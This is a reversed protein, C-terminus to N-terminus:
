RINRKTKPYLSKILRDYEKDKPAIIEIKVVKETNEKM